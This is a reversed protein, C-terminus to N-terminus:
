RALRLLARRAEGSLAVSPSDKSLLALLEKAELTGIRELVEITRWRSHEGPEIRFPRPREGLISRIRGRAEESASTELAAALLGEPAIQFLETTSRERAIVEDSDLNQLLSSIRAHDVSSGSLRGKLYRVAADGLGALKWLAPYAVEPDASLDRWLSDLQDLSRVGAGPPRLSWLCVAGEKMGSLISGGDPHFALSLPVCDGTDLFLAQKWTLVEVLRISGDYCGLALYRGDASFALSRGIMDGWDVHKSRLTLFARIKCSNTDWIEMRRDERDAIVLVGGPLTASPEENLPYAAGRLRTGRALDWVDIGHDTTSVLDRGVFALSYLAEWSARAGEGGFSRLAELTDARWAQIKLGQDGTVLLTGDPSYLISVVHSRHGELLSRRIGTRPDVIHVKGNDGGIVLSRNDPSPAIAFIRDGCTYTVPGQPTSLSWIRVRGGYDGSFVANLKPLFGVVSVQGDWETPDGVWRRLLASSAAQEVPIPDSSGPTARESSCSNLLLFIGIAFSCRM